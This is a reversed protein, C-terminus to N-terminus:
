TPAYCQGSGWAKAPESRDWDPVGPITHQRLALTAQLLSAMGSAACTHGIHASARGLAAESYIQQLGAVEAAADELIGSAHMSVFGVQEPAVGASELAVAAAGAVSDPTIGRAFAVSEAVAHIVDEDAQAQELPKLVVAGAGEGPIWDADVEGTPAPWARSGERSRLMVSEASGALDVAAVVAAEVEGAELLMQAVEVAKFASNEEASVTFAPGSFDWLASIRSAMINGIYSTFQNVPVAQLLADQVLKTLEAQQEASLTIGSASLGEEIQKALNVRGRFRHLELEVEMAVLVAVNQGAKLNTQRLARDTVELTLLQQPILREQPNPPLKFRLFDMEFSELWAGQLTKPPRNETEPKTSVGDEKSSQFKAEKASEIGLGRWRTEPLSCFAQEGNLFARQLENIGKFNGFIGDMGIIALAPTPPRHDTIPKTAEREGKSSQFKIGRSNELILHANCGGFGFASVAARREPRNHPWDSTERLIQEAAFTGNESSHPQEVHITGPIRGQQLALMVKTMGGMGAATLMHGLNSKVSGIPPTTGSNGFFAEMSNLEVKDGLPTGTAHCEIYDVSQPDVGSSAYAREFAFQQGKPNPSLVFQGRGDNSLGIGPIVAHIRDGDREADSLRKLVFMGAGESAFLGGSTRDLPRSKGAEPYAQFISFGMNVFFPDAASVAGALMLDSRESWLTHCALGVSYLSSACAADLAYTHGSLGLAEAILSAPRGAIGLNEPPQHHTTPPGSFEPLLFDPRGLLDQLMPELAERYLPLVLHNSSKTPFSLNGLIVGCHTLREPDDLLNADHLAERAVHLSWQFVDDLGSLRAAPVRFGEPDFTFDHIYGGQTCYYCDTVGKRDAKFWVPDTHM